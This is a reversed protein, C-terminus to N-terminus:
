GKNLVKHQMLLNAALAAELEGEKGTWWLHCQCRYTMERGDPALMELCVGHGSCPDRECPRLRKACNRDGFGLPCLCEYGEGTLQCSGGNRCPQADCVTQLCHRGIFHGTCICGGGLPGCRGGNFCLNDDCTPSSSYSVSSRQFVM